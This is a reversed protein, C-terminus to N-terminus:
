PQAHRQHGAEARFPRRYTQFQGQRRLSRRSKFNSASLIPPLSRAPNDLVTPAEDVVKEGDTIRRWKFTWALEFPPIYHTKCLSPVFPRMLATQNRGRRGRWEQGLEMVATGATVPDHQPQNPKTTQNQERRRLSRRSKFKQGGDPGMKGDLARQLDLIPLEHTLVRVKGEGWVTVQRVLLQIARIQCDLPIRNIFMAFRQLAGQVADVDYVARQGHAIRAELEIAQAELDKRSNELKQTEQAVEKSSGGDKVLNLLHQHERRIGLLRDEIERKEKELPGIGAKSMREVKQVMKELFPRNWGITALKEIVYEDLKQAGVAKFSCKVPLGNQQALCRYYLYVKGKKPRPNVNPVVASDCDGCRLLGKLRFGYKNKAYTTPRERLNHEQLIKQAAEFVQPPIIPKHQGPFETGTRKNTIIGIYVKRQLIRTVSDMDFSEGGYLRGKQTKHRKRRFGLRNLEEAVRITSKHKLYLNFIRRVVAADDENIVLLKDKYDYGIPPLGGCWLGKKARALHFDKSREQDMERDYQAFQVMIATMLRGQPSKTDISETASVFAVDHKEFLELLYHFDRSNRTIRDLKYVIVGDIKGEEVCKLLRQMAPRKLSRGSEAADDFVEPYEEWRNAKQISIYSRCCSKQADLSTVNTALNDDNSKRTYIAIQKVKKDDVSSSTTSM